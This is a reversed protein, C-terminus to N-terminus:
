KGKPATRRKRLNVPKYDKFERDWLQQLEKALESARPELVSGFWVRDGIVFMLLM